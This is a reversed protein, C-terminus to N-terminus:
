LFPILVCKSNCLHQSRLTAEAWTVIALSSCKQAKLFNCTLGYKNSKRPPHEVTRWFVVYIHSCGQVKWFTWYLKVILTIWRVLWVTLLWFELINVMVLCILLMHNVGSHQAVTIYNPCRIDDKVFSKWICTSSNWGLYVQGRVFKLWGGPIAPTTGSLIDQALFNSFNDWLLPVPPRTYM